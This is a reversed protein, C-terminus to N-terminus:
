RSGASGSTAEADEDLLIGAIRGEAQAAAIAPALPRLLAYARALQSDLRGDEIGFVSFGLARHHGLAWFLGGTRFRTEPIFLPNDPRDYDAMAAQADDVYIDPALLDLSPAAAKWVDLM